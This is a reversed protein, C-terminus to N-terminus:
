LHSEYVITRSIVEQQTLFYQRQNMMGKSVANVRARPMWPSSM